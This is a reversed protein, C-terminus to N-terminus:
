KASRPATPPWPNVHDVKAKGQFERFHIECLDTNEAIRHRHDRCMPLDCTKGDGIPYDCLSEHEYECGPHACFRFGKMGPGCMTVVDGGIMDKRETEPVCDPIEVGAQRYLEEMTCPRTRYTICPSM